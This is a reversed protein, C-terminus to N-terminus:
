LFHTLVFVSLHMNINCGQWLCTNKLLENQNKVLIELSCFNYVKLLVIFVSVPEFYITLFEVSKGQVLSNKVPFPLSDTFNTYMVTSNFHISLFNRKLM